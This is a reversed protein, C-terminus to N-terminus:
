PVADVPLWYGRDSDRDLEGHGAYYLLFNDDSTLKERYKNLAQLITYRDANILVEMKFRYQKRLVKALAEVDNGPTKLDPFNPYTNNGIVLAFYNGFKVDPIAPNATDASPAPSAGRMAINNSNSLEAKLTRLRDLAQKYAGIEVRLAANQGQSRALEIASAGLESELETTKIRSQQDYAERASAFQEKQQQLESQQQTILTNSQSLADQSAKLQPENNRLKELVSQQQLLAIDANERSQQERKELQLKESKILQNHKTIETELYSINHARQELDAQQKLIIKSLEAIERTEGTNDSAIKLDERLAVMQHKGVKLDSRSQGLESTLEATQKELRAITENQQDLLAQVSEQTGQENDLRYAFEAQQRDLAIRMSQVKQQQVALQSEKQQIQRNLKAIEEAGSVTAMTTDARFRMQELERRSKDLEAL